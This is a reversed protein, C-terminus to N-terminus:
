PGPKGQCPQPEDRMPAGLDWLCPAALVVFYPLVVCFIMYPSRPRGARDSASVQTDQAGAQVAPPPGWVAKVGPLCGPARSLSPVWCARHSFRFLGAEPFHPASRPGSRTCTTTVEQLPHSCLRMHASTVRPWVAGPARKTCGKWGKLCLGSMNTSPLPGGTQLVPPGARHLSFEPRSGALSWAGDQLQAQPLLKCRARRPPPKASNTKLLLRFVVWSCM